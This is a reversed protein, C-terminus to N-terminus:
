PGICLWSVHNIHFTHLVLYSHASFGHLAFPNVASFKFEKWLYVNVTFRNSHSPSILIFSHANYNRRNNEAWGDEHLLLLFESHMKM